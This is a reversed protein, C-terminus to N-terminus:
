WGLDKEYGLTVLMDGAIDKFVRRDDASFHNKWDGAIGKRYFRKRDEQGRERGAYVRFSARDIMSAVLADDYSLGLHDLLRAVVPPGDALLAEYSCAHLRETEAYRQHAEMDRRWREVAAAFSFPKGLHEVTFFRDSVVVDRGDRYIVLLKAQPFAARIHGVQHVNSPSKELLYRGPALRDRLFRYFRRSYDAPDAVGAIERRLRRQDLLSLDPLESPRDARSLSLAPKRGKLLPAAWHSLRQAATARLGGGRSWPTHSFLKATRAAVDAQEWAIEFAATEMVGRVDPHLSLLNLLWTSGSKRHGVIFAFGEGADADPSAPRRSRSGQSGRPERGDETIQALPAPEPRKRESAIM